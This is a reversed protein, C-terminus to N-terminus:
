VGRYEHSVTLAGPKVKILYYNGAASTGLNYVSFVQKPLSSIPISSGSDVHFVQTNGNTDLYELNWENYCSICDITSSPFVWSKRTTVPSCELKLIVNDYHTNSSPIRYDLLNKAEPMCLKYERSRHYDWPYSSVSATNYKYAVRKEKNAGGFNYLCWPEPGSITWLNNSLSGYPILSQTLTIEVSYAYRAYDSLYANHTYMTPGQHGPLWDPDYNCLMWSNDKRAVSPIYFICARKNTSMISDIYDTYLWQLWQAVGNIVLPQVLTACPNCNRLLLQLQTAITAIPQAPTAIPQWHTGIPQVITSFPQLQNCNTSSHNCHHQM